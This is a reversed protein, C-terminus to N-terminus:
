NIEPHLKNRFAFETNKLQLEPNFSNLIEVNYSSTYSKLAHFLKTIKSLKKKEYLVNEHIKTEGYLNTNSNIGADSLQSVKESQKIVKSLKHSTNPHKIPVLKIDVINLNETTKTTSYNKKIRKGIKYKKEEM